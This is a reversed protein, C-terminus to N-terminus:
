EFQLRRRVPRQRVPKASATGPGSTLPSSTTKSKKVFSEMCDESNKVQDEGHKAQVMVKSSRYFETISLQKGSSKPSESKCSKRKLKAEKLAKEELFQEVQEPFAAQVLEKNEDTLLFWTGDDVLIHPVDAEDLLDDLADISEDVRDSESQQPDAQENTIAYLADSAYPTAKNWKVLYFQHGYKVKVRQISHFKYQDCLLLGNNPNSAMERLFITSLMPLMRQRVFSPEWRQHYSLFEVLTGIKPNGWSLSPGNKEDFNGHNQSLYMEIIENNPFNQEACIKHCVKIQWNAHKKQEKSRRDKDCDICECKFGVPKQTCKEHGYVNCYECAVKLHTRKFIFLSSIKDKSFNEVTTINCDVNANLGGQLLLTDGKGVEHLRNLIEDESFMQVFRVATEVGIGPVGQLDHDSGALLSIAVLHNRRLGLGAEIDSMLYCEVPEQFNELGEM